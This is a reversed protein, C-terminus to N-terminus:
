DTLRRATFSVAGFLLCSFSISIVASKSCFKKEEWWELVPWLGSYCYGKSYRCTHKWDFTKWVQGFKCTSNDAAKFLTWRPLVVLPKCGLVVINSVDLTEM